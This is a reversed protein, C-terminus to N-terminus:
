GKRERGQEIADALANRFTYERRRADKGTMPLVHGGLMRSAARPHLERLQNPTLNTTVVQFGTRIQLAEVFKTLLDEQYPLDVRHGGVEDLVVLPLRLWSWVPAPAGSMIRNQTRDITSPVPIWRCGVGAALARRMIWAAIASKGSGTPGWLLLWEPVAGADSYREAAGMDYPWADAEMPWEQYKPMWDAKVKGSVKRDVGRAELEAAPVDEPAGYGRRLCTCRASSRTELEIVWGRGRCDPCGSAGEDDTIPMSEINPLAIEAPAPPSAKPAFDLKISGSAILKEADRRKELLRANAAELSENM